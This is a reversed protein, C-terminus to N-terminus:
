CGDEARCRPIAVMDARRDVLLEASDLPGPLAIDLPGAAAQELTRLDSWRGDQLGVIRYRGAPVVDAAWRRGLPKLLVPAPRWGVPFRPSHAPGHAAYLAQLERPYLDLVGTSFWLVHGGQGLRRALAISDRLQAWSSARGDGVIRIGPLLRQPRQPRDAGAAQVAATQQSWTSEFAAYDLRYAQPVVEDWSPVVAQAAATRVPAGPLRDASNWATWRPWDLLYNDWSWPYVAPSLSLVLGPRRARLEQVFWRAVEDVKVARWRMWAPDRFDDPPAAGGHAQAYAALTFADYGMSVHPWVIRDDFQVGDLDHRDVAELVLDLLFVRAEPHLPNMWVFGNPAVEGGARNRSLWEPKLRRLHNMTSGHAAMFGYEFWAVFILGHRHAEILTEGLLDRPPAAAPKDSPDQLVAAPRQAVGLTRQLVTSPWQAYGNKWCEVYVTNLGIQALRRMTRAINESSALADNATTTLWTGRVEARTQVGPPAAASRHAALLFPALTAAWGM